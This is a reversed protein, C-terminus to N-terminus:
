QLTGENNLFWNSPFNSRFSVKSHLPSKWNGDIARRKKLEKIEPSFKEPCDSEMFDFNDDKM